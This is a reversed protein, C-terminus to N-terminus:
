PRFISHIVTDGRQIGHLKVTGARLELVARVPVKSSLPQTSLPTSNRIINRILGNKNIFIIDLPFYTNKMWMTVYDTNQFDFLMGAGDALHSRWMLGRARQRKTESIEIKFSISKNGTKITLKDQRFSLVDESHCQPTIGLWFVLVFPISLPYRNTM